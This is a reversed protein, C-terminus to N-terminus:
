WWPCFLSLTSLNIYNVGVLLLSSCHSSLAFQFCRGRGNLRKQRRACPLPIPATNLRSCKMELGEKKGQESTPNRGCSAMRGLSIGHPSGVTQLEVDPGIHTQVVSSMKWACVPARVLQLGPEPGEGASARWLSCGEEPWMWRSWGPRRWLSHVSIQKEHHVM